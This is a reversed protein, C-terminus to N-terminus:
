SIIAGIASSVGSYVTLEIRSSMSIESMGSHTRGASLASWASTVHGAAAAAAAEGTEAKAEGADDDSSRGGGGWGGAEEEEEAAKGAGGEDAAGSSTPKPPPRGDGAGVDDGAAEAAPISLLGLPPDSLPPSIPAVDSGWVPPPPPPPPILVLPLPPAAPPLLLPRVAPPPSRAAATRFGEPLTECSTPLTRMGNGGGRWVVLARSGSLDYGGSGDNVRGLLDDGLEAAPGM